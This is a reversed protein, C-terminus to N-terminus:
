ADKVDGFECQKTGTVKGVERKSGCCHHHTEQSVGTQPPCPLPPITLILPQPLDDPSSEQVPNVLPGPAFM